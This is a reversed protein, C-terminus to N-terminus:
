QVIVTGTESPDLANHYGWRGKQSLYVKKSEGPQIVGANLEPNGTHDPYPDSMFQLTRVSRNRIRIYNNVTATSLNPEFGQGTYTVTAAVDDEQIANLNPQRNASTSGDTQSNQSNVGVIAIAGFLILAVIAGIAIKVTGNM